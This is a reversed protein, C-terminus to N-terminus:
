LINFFIFIDIKILAKINLMICQWNYPNKGLSNKPINNPYIYM